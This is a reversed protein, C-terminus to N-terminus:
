RVNGVLNGPTIGPVPLFAVLAVFTLFVVFAVFVAFAVLVVFAVLEMACAGVADLAEFRAFRAVM